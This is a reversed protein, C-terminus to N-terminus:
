RAHRTDTRDSVVAETRGGPGIQKGVWARADNDAGLVADLTDAERLPLADLAEAVLPVIDGFAIRRALFAAVAAENAGNLVAGATGGLRIVRYALDLAPFRQPDPPEFDLRSLSTWDLREGCGEVRHPHMLSAQIPTRMDPPGLQALVSGDVFEVMAHVTSQPHILVDIREGEVGFLWHAEIVELAKNMMTASDITIKPGMDWTPHNLAQEPTADRITAPDSERFPGGSATLIIRRVSTIGRGDAAALCQFVGSHESDIPLLVARTQRALRTVLSGAAVLTEKNALHVRMGREVAALTAALGAVGVIATVVDTADSEAVLRRAADFGLLPADQTLTTAAHPDALALRPPHPLQRVQEGLREANCGAALGVVDFNAAGTRNLHQVVELTNVGISGTSGLVILRRTPPPADM